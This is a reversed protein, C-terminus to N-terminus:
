ENHLSIDFGLLFMGLKRELLNIFVNISSEETASLDQIWVLWMGGYNKLVIHVTQTM